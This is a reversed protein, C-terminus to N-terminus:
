EIRDHIPLPYNGYMSSWRSDSTYGFNGGMMTWRKGAMVPRLYKYEPYIEHTKVELVVFRDTDGNNIDDEDWQGSPHPVVFIKGKANDPHTVGRNTCDVEPRFIDISLFRKM